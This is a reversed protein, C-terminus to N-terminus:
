CECVCMCLVCVCVCVCVCLFCGYMFAFRRSTPCTCSCASGSVWQECHCQSGICSPSCVCSWNVCMKVYLSRVCLRFVVTRIEPAIRHSTGREQQVRLAEQADLVDVAAWFTTEKSMIGRLGSFLKKRKEPDPNEEWLEKAAETNSWYDSYLFTEEMTFDNLAESREWM